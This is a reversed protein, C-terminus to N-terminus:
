IAASDAEALLAVRSVFLVPRRKVWKRRDIMRDQQAPWDAPTDRPNAHGRV